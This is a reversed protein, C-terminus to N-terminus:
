FECTIGINTNVDIASRQQPIPSFTVTPRNNLTSEDLSSVVNLSFDPNQSVKPTSYQFLVQPSRTFQQDTDVRLGADDEDEPAIAPLSAVFVPLLPTAKVRDLAQRLNSQEISSASPTNEAVPSLPQLLTSQPLVSVSDDL